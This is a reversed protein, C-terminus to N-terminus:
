EAGGRPTLPVEGGNVRVLRQGFDVQVFGDEYSPPVDAPREPVGRRLLAEVRALLEQRGFPKVLYDDADGKLGRVKELERGLATLMLVPVDTVDRIRELMGWGDLGPMTVDLVV